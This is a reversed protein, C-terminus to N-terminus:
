NSINEDNEIKWIANEDDNPEDDWVKEPKQPGKKRYVIAFLAGSIAGALHGEWSVPDFKQWPFLHWVNNGYLFVVILSIAILPVHKRIIGSFFLFFALAYVMGSLGIHWADRGIVWLILGSLLLSFILVRSAIESYFYYLCVSLVFFSIINSSLHGWGSHVFPMSFINILTKPERPFVGATKFDADMGREFLFALIVLFCIISPYFVAFYIKKKDESTEDMKESM